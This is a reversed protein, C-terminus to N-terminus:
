LIVSIGIEVKPFTPNDAGVELGNAGSSSETFIRSLRYSGYLAWRKYGLRGYFGYRWDELDKVGGTRVKVAQGETNDFKIKYIGGIKYGLYGGGELFVRPDGDEDKSLNVYIGIPLEAYPIRHKEINYGTTDSPFTKADEQRYILKLWNIGPTFQLGVDNNALNVKFALGMFYSGSSGSNVPANDSEGATLSFARTFVLRVNDQRDVPLNMSEEQAWLSLQGCLFVGLLCVITKRM